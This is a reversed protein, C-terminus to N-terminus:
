RFGVPKGSARDTFATVKCSGKWDPPVAIRLEFRGARGAPLPQPAVAGYHYMPKFDEFNSVAAVDLALPDGSINKVTASITADGTATLVCRLDDVELAVPPPAGLGSFLKKIRERQWYGLLVVIAVVVVFGVSGRQSARV